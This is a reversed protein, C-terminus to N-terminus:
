RVDSPLLEFPQGDSDRYVVFDRRDFTFIRRLTERQALYVLAVDAVQPDLDHYRDLLDVLRDFEAPRIDLVQLLGNTCGRLIDCKATPRGRLLYTTEVLVPWCTLMPLGIHKFQEVCAAHFQDRASFLAVLPGTDVLVRDIM